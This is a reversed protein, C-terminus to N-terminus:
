NIIFLRESQVWLGLAAAHQKLVGEMPGDGVVVGRVDPRARHVVAMADVFLAVNKIPVLRSVCLM